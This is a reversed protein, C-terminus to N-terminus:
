LALRDGALWEQILEHAEERTLEPREALLMAEFEWLLCMRCVGPVHRHQACRRRTRSLLEAFTM